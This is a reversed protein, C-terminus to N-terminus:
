SIMNYIGGWGLPVPTKFTTGTTGPLLWLKGNADRGVLDSHLDGNASSVTAMLNYASVDTTLPRSGVLLGPGDGRYVTMQANTTRVILDPAGDTDWRGVGMAKRVTMASGIPYGAGI